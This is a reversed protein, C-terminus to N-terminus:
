NEIKTHERASTDIHLGLSELVDSLSKDGDTLAVTTNLTVGSPLVLLNGDITGKTCINMSVTGNNAIDLPGEFASIGIVQPLGSADVIPLFGNPVASDRMILQGAKAEFAAGTNNKFIGEKFRNDFIFIPQSSTIVATSQNRTATTQQVTSM